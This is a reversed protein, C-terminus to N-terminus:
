DWGDFAIHIRNRILFVNVKDTGINGGARIAEDIYRNLEEKTAVAPYLKLSIDVLMDRYKVDGYVSILSVGGIEDQGKYLDAEALNIAEAKVGYSDVISKIKKTIENSKDWAGDSRLVYGGITTNAAMVGNNYLYYWENMHQVWGTLMTGNFNLFYWKGGDKLWGTQMAGKSNLYYWYGADYIWGTKMGGTSDLYYWKGNDQAWGTKMAGNGSLLYWKNKDLIWATLMAGSSNLYYWRNGSHVWGTKMYGSSDLYYWKGKDFIWGTQMIGKENFYYWKTNIEKWDTAYRGNTYYYWDGEKKVWGDIVQNGQIATASTNELPLPFVLITVAFVLLVFGKIKKNVQFVGKLINSNLYRRVIGM